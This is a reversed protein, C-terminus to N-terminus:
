ESKAGHLRCFLSSNHLCVPTGSPALTTRDIKKDAPFWSSCCRASIDLEPIEHVFIEFFGSQIRTLGCLFYM